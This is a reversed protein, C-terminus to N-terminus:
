EAFFYRLDITVFTGLMDIFFMDEFNEYNFDVEDKKYKPYIRGIEGWPRHLSAGFYYNGKEETRYEMGINALLARYGGNKRYTNQYFGDLKEGESFIDSALVNHSIGFAVNLYWYESARVYTLVQLPLEYSRMGFTTYDDLGIANNSVSLKHNKQIYNLGAEISFTANIKQRIVMGFSNSYKPTLNFSYEESSKSVDSSNFYAAPIIPKYQLGFTTKNQASASLFSAFFLFLIIKSKM